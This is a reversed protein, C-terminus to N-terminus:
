RMDKWRTKPRERRRGQMEMDVTRREDERWKRWREEHGDVYLLSCLYFNEYVCRFEMEKCSIRMGFGILDRLMVRCEEGKCNAVNGM